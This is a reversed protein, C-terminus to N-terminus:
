SRAFLRQTEEELTLGKGDNASEAVDAAPMRPKQAPLAVKAPKGWTALLANRDAESDLACIAKVRIAEVPMGQSELLDRAAIEGKLRKNEAEIAALRSEISATQSEALEKAAAADADAKAQEDAAKAAETSAAEERAKVEADTETAMGPEQSEFLSKTTAANAVLDISRVLEFGSVIEKGSVFRSLIRANHSCGLADPMSEAAEAVMNAMPHSKLYQIDGYVGDDRAETRVIKGFRDSLKRDAQLNARDPHDINVRKNEYLKAAQRIAEPLYTRNSHGNLDISHLGLLKAGKIIGAERDIKADGIGTFELVDRATPKEATATSM